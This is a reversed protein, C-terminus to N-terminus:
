PLDPPEIGLELTTLIPIQPGPKALFTANRGAALWEHNVLGMLARAYGVVHQCLVRSRLSEIELISWQHIVAETAM